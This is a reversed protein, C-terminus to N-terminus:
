YLTGLLWDSWHEACIKKILSGVRRM